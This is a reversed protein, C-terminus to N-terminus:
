KLRALYCGGDCKGAGYVPCGSCADLRAMDMWACFAVAVSDSMAAALPWQAAFCTIAVFTWVSASVAKLALEYKFINPTSRKFLRWTQLAAILLFVVSWVDEPAAHQM